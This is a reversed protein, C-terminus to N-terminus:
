GDAASFNKPQKWKQHNHIISSGVNGNLIKHPCAGMERSELQSHCVGFVTTPPALCTPALESM